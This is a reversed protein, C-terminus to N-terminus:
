VGASDYEKTEENWYVCSFSSDEDAIYDFQIEFQAEDALDSIDVKTGDELEFGFQQLHSARTFDSNATAAETANSTNKSLTNIDLDYSAKKVTLSDVDKGEEKLKDLENSLHDVLEDKIM